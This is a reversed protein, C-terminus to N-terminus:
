RSAATPQRWGPRCAPGTLVCGGCRREHGCRVGPTWSRADARTTRSVQVASSARRV